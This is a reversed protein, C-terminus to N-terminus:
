KSLHANYTDSVNASVYVGQGNVHTLHSMAAVRGQGNCLMDLLGDCKELLSIALQCM